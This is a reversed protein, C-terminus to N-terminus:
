TLFAFLVAGAIVLLIFFFFRRAFAFEREQEEWDDRQNYCGPCGRLGAAWTEGHSCMPSSMDPEPVGCATLHGAVKVCLVEQTTWNGCKGNNRVLDQLSRTLISGGYGTPDAHHETSRGM